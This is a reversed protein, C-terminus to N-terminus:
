GILCRRGPELGPSAMLSGGCCMGEVSLGLSGALRRSMSYSEGVKSSKAACTREFGVSVRHFRVGLLRSTRGGLAEDEGCGPPFDEAFTHYRKSRPRARTPYERSCLGWPAGSGKSPWEVVRALMLSLVRCTSFKRHMLFSSRWNPSVVTSIPGFLAPFDAISSEM